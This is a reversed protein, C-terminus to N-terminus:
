RPDSGRRPVPTIGAAKVLGPIAPDNMHGDYVATNLGIANSPTSGLGGTANVSVTTSATTAAAAEGTLGAAGLVQVAAGSIWRTRRHM